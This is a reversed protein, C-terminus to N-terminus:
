EQLTIEPHILSGNGHMSADEADNQRAHGGESHKLTLLPHPRHLRRQLLQVTRLLAERLALLQLVGPLAQDLDSVVDGLTQLLVGVGLLDLLPPLSHRSRGRCGRRGVSKSLKTM